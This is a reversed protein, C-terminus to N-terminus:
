AAAKCTMARYVLDVTSMTELAQPVSCLNGDGIRTLRVFEHLQAHLLESSGQGVALLEREDGVTQWLQEDSVDIRHTGTWISVREERPAVDRGLLLTALTGQSFRLLIGARHEVAGEHRSRDPVAPIAAAEIPVGFFATLQDLAHYGMDLIAGGGAEDHALRWGSAPAPLGLTRQWHVIKAPRRLRRLADQMGGFVRSQRRQCAVAVPGPSRALDRALERAELLSRAFPKEKLVAVGRASCELLADFYASHPVSMVVAAPAAETLLADLNPYVACGVDRAEDPDLQPDCAGVVKVAPCDHGARLHKSGRAGLGVIGLTLPGNVTALTQCDARDM